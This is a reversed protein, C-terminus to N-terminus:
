QSEHDGDEIVCPYVKYGDTIYLFCAWGVVVQLWLPTLTEESRDGVVFKLIGPHKTNVVTWLWIKNKKVSLPKYSTSNLRKPFRTIRM